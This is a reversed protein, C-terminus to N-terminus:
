EKCDQKYWISLIESLIESLNAPFKYQMGPLHKDITKEIWDKSSDGNFTVLIRMPFTSLRFAVFKSLHYQRLRKSLRYARDWSGEIAKFYDDLNTASDWISEDVDQLYEVAVLAIIEAAISGTREDDTETYEVLYKAFMEEHYETIVNQM